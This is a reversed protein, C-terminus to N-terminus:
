IRLSHKSKKGFLKEILTDEAFGADDNSIGAQFDNNLIITHLETIKRITKEEILNKAVGQAKKETLLIWEEGDNLAIQDLNYLAEERDKATIVSIFGDSNIAVYKM